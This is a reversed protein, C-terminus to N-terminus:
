DRVAPQKFFDQIISLFFNQKSYLKLKDSFLALVMIVPIGRFKNTESATEIYFTHDKFDWTWYQYQCNQKYLRSELKLIFVQIKFTDM